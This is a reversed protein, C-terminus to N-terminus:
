LHRDHGHAHAHGHALEEATPERIARVKVKFNLTKGALPHNFNLRVVNNEIKEIRAYMPNGDDDEVQLETRIEVPIHDPFQNKPAELYAEPDIEGYGEEPKVTVEKSEGIKMGLMERELGAIINNHGQLYQLPEHETSADIEKGDVHLSYDMVVILDNAVTDM